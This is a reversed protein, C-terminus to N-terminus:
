PADDRVAEPSALAAVDDALERLFAAVALPEHSAGTVREEAGPGGGITVDVSINGFRDVQSTLDRM